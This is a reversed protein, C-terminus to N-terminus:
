ACGELNRFQPDRGVAISQVTDTDDLLFLMGVDGELRWAMSWTPDYPYDDTVLGDGYLKDLDTLSSGITIGDATKPFPGSYGDAAGFAFADVPGDAGGSEALVFVSSFEGTDSLTYTACSPDSNAIDRSYDVGTVQTLDAATMGVTLPGLGQASVAWTDFPADAPNPPTAIATPTATVKITVTQAPPQTSACGALTVAALAATAVVALRPSPLHM